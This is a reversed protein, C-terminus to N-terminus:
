DIVTAWLHTAFIWVAHAASIIIEQLELTALLIILVHQRQHLDSEAFDFLLDDLILAAAFFDVLPTVAIITLRYSSRLKDPAECLEESTLRSAPIEKLSSRDCSLCRRRRRM